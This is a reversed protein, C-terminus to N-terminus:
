VTNHLTTKQNKEMLDYDIKWIYLPITIVGFFLLLFTWSGKTSNDVNKFSWLRYILYIVAPYTIVATLLNQQEYPIFNNTIWRFFDTSIHTAVYILGILYSLTLLVKLSRHM